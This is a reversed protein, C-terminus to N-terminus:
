TYTRKLSNEVQTNCFPCKLKPRYEEELEREIFKALKADYNESVITWCDECVKLHGCPYLTVQSVQDFCICCPMLKLIPGDHSQSSPPQAVVEDEYLDYNDNEPRPYDVCTFDELNKCIKNDAFAMRNLFIAASIKRKELEESAAAIKDARDQFFVFM